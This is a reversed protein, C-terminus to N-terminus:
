PPAPELGAQAPKPELWRLLVLGLVACLASGTFIGVKAASLLTESFALGAIFLSMTFGIGALVGGSALISWSIGDPLKAMGACVALWSFLVIGVPKGLCLGVVVALAVSDTFAAPELPVGANALAFLPMILFSVWPHLVTELREVPSTAERVAREASQLVTQRQKPNQWAEGQLFGGFRGAFERFLMPSVWPKAPTLLGILVGAITTHV